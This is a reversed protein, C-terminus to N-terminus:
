IIPFISEDTPPNDSGDCLTLHRKMRLDVLWRAEPEHYVIYFGCNHPCFEVFTEEGAAGGTLGELEKMNVANKRILKKETIMM